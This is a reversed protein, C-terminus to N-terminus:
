HNLHYAAVDTNRQEGSLRANNSEWVETLGNGGLKSFYIVRKQGFVLKFANTPAHNKYLM